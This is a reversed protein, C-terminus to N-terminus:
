CLKMTNKFGLFALGNIRALERVGVGSGPPTPTLPILAM